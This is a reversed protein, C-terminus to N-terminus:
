AGKKDFREILSQLDNVASATGRVHKRRTHGPVGALTVTRLEELKM